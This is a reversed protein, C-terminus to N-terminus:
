PRGAACIGSRRCRRACAARGASGRAPRTSPRARASASTSGSSGTDGAPLRRPARDPRRDVGLQQPQHPLVARRDDEDVVAARGLPQRRPEVLQRVLRRLTLVGLPRVRASRHHLYSAGVVARERALLPQDDLLLQLGALDGADDRGGRQLQPDVHAGDVEHQLDLRRLRDGGPQLPDAAGAVVDAVRAFPRMKGFNRASRSSHATTACRIRSPAISGVTTGRLGSSTSACCITAIAAASSSSFTSSSYARTM